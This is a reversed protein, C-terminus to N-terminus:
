ASLEAYIEPHARMVRALVEATPNIPFRGSEWGELTRRPVRLAQALAAQSLGLQKRVSKFDDAASAKTAHRARMEEYTEYHVSSALSPMKLPYTYCTNNAVPIEISVPAFSKSVTHGL